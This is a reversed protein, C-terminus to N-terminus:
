RASGSPRTQLGVPHTRGCSLLSSSQHPLTPRSAPPCPHPIMPVPVSTSPPVRQPLPQPQGTLSTPPHVIASGVPQPYICYKSLSQQARLIHRPPPSTPWPKRSSRNNNPAHAPSGPGARDGLAGAAGRQARLQATWAGGGMGGCVCWGPGPGGGQQKGSGAPGTASASHRLAPYASAAQWTAALGCSPTAMACSTCRLPTAVPVSARQTAALWFAARSSRAAVAAGATAAATHHPTYQTSPLNPEWSPRGPPSTEGHHHHHHTHTHTHPARHLPVHAAGSAHLTCGSKTYISPQVIGYGAKQPLAHTCLQRTSHLLAGRRTADEAKVLQFCKRERAQDRPCSHM